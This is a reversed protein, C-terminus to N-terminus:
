KGLLEVLANRAAAFSFHEKMVTIGGSSIKEWLNQDQYLRIVGSSFQNPTDAVLVSKGDQLYMGEVAASTGVVPLGHALSLNVKGKVGAGYRLPAVSLRCGELYPIL